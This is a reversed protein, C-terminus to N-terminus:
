ENIFDVAIKRAEAGEKLDGMVSIVHHGNEITVFTLDTGESKMKQALVYIDPYFSEGTAVFLLTKPMKNFKGYVPSILYDYVAKDGAWAEGCLKLFTDPLMVETYRYMDIYKNLSTLDVWPSHLIMKDPLQEDRDVLYHMFAVTLGGGASDGSIIIEKGEKLLEKYIKYLPEFTDKYTYDPALKYLPMVAKVGTETVVNDVYALQWDYMPYIYAGGHIYFLIKNYDDDKQLTLVHFGEAMLRTLRNKCEYTIEGKDIGKGKRRNIEARGEAEDDWRKETTTRDWNAIMENTAQDCRIFLEKM